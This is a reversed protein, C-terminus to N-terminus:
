HAKPGRGAREDLFSFRCLFLCRPVLRASALLFSVPLAKSSLLLPLMSELKLDLHAVDHAHLYRIVDTMEKIRVRALDEPMAGFTNLYDLLEGGECLEIVLYIYTKTEFVEYLKAINPSDLTSM